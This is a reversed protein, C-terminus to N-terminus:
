IDAVQRVVRALILSLLIMLLLSTVAVTSAYGLKFFLFGTKYTFTNLVETTNGPGGYTLIFVLDFTQFADMTRILLAALLVPRLLPLTIYVFQQFTSAGDIMASEYPEHPLAQLGGVLIIAIFPTAYWVDAIILSPMSLNASTIWSLPVDIINLRVLAFNILGYPDNFLWRWEYGVVVPAIMVPVLILARAVGKGRFSRNLALALLLGLLTEIAVVFFTFVFTNRIIQRGAKSQFFAIFNDIGIWTPVADIEAYNFKTFSLYVSYLVPYAYLILMIVMLPSIMAYYFRHKHWHNRLHRWTEAWGRRETASRFMRLSIM